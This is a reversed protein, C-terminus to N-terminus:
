NKYLLPVELQKEFLLGRLTFEVCLCNFYVTELLGPGMNKHVEIAAAIIKQTLDQSPYM